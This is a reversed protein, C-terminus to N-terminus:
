RMWIANPEAVLRQLMGRIGGYVVPAPSSAPSSASSM